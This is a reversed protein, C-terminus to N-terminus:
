VPSRHTQRAAVPSTNETSGSTWVTVPTSTHAVVSSCATNMHGGAMYGYPAAGRGAWSGNYITRKLCDAVKKIVPLISKDGARLYYECLAPGSYGAFWPYTKIEEAGEYKAVLKKIWGRVVELDKEEGTSPMFLMSGQIGLGVSEEKSLFDAFSSKPKPNM